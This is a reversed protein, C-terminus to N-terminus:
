PLITQCHYAYIYLVVTGSGCELQYQILECSEFGSCNLSIVYFQSSIRGAFSLWRWVM